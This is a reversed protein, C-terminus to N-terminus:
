HGPLGNRVPTHRPRSAPFPETRIRGAPRMTGTAADGWVVIDGGAEIVGDVKAGDYLHIDGTSRIGGHVHVGPLVRVDSEAEISGAVMSGAGLVVRGRVCVPGHVRVQPQTYLSGALFIGGEICTGRGVLLLTTENVRVGSPIQSHAKIRFGHRTRVVTSAGDVLM